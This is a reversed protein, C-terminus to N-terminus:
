FRQEKHLWCMNTMRRPLLTFLNHVFNAEAWPPSLAPAAPVGLMGGKRKEDQLSSLGLYIGVFNLSEIELLM